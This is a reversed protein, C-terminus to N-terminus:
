PAYVAALFAAAAEAAPALSSATEPDLRAGLGAREDAPALTAPTRGWPLEVPPRGPAIIRDFRELELRTASEVSLAHPTFTLYVRRLGARTVNALWRCEEEDIGGVAVAIDILAVERTVWELLQAGSRPEFTHHQIVSFDNFFQRAAGSGEERLTRAFAHNQRAEVVRVIHGQRALALALGRTLLAAPDGAYGVVTGPFFTIKLARGPHDTAPNIM